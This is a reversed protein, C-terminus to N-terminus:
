TRGVSTKTFYDQLDHTKINNNTFFVGFVREYSCSGGKNTPPTTLRKFIDKMVANNVIFSSHQAITFPSNMDYELRASNLLRKGINKIDKDLTFGSPHLFIYANTNDVTSLPVEKNIVLSDQICFYIDYDPYTESAFKWAGYEYNKNKIFHLDVSPFDGKIKDYVEMNDSDSDVVCVKYNPRNKIQVKFLSDICQHLISNPSKSSIVILVTPENLGGGVKRRPKGRKKKIKRTKRKNM